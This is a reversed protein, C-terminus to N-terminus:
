IYLDRTMDPRKGTYLKTIYLGLFVSLILFGYFFFAQKLTYIVDQSPQVVYLFADHLFHFVMGALLSGTKYTVYTFGLSMIFVGLLDVGKLWDMEFNGVHMVVFVLSQILATKKVNKYIGLFILMVFGRFIVEEFIGPLM